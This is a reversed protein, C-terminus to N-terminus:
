GGPVVIFGSSKEGFNKPTGECVARATVACLAADVFDINPLRSTDLGVKRLVERRSGSKGKAPLVRGALTCAIAHPFTEFVVKSRGPRGTYLPWGNEVLATYLAEGQLMWDYYGTKHGDAKDRCPTSFCFIRRAMLERECLRAVGPVSWGCPADVGISQVGQDVCWRTIEHPCRSKFRDINGVSSLCVAHFGKKPGGVDIGAVSTSDKM